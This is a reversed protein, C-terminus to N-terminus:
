NNHNTVEIHGIWGPYPKFNFFKNSKDRLCNRIMEDSSLVDIDELNKLGYNSNSSLLYTFQKLKMPDFGMLRTTVLDVALFNDGGILVGVPKPDPVLPGKNEGGIIGDVISFLKRQISDHIQGNKDAFHIIKMLDVVMRWATDNGYWNGADFLRKEDAVKVGLPKVLKLYLFGYIIRHPIEWLISNKALFTDYMWREFKIIKQEVPTLFGDPFQDGGESPTGLTYHVILNKNTAIGVLGKGNLTVGVKKHVKMKPLSILVDASLITKSIEYEQREGLHHLIAEQRHYVAGYFKKPNPHSYYASEKGLNIKISGKPDGPLKRKCSPMHLSKSWYNRLDLLKVSVGSYSSYFDVVKDLGTVEILEKFNCNYQPADAIIIEGDGQLAIWCYDIVARILSPHTIISYIDKGEFHRSLVFNPKIVVVMGPKIFEGLPNWRNKGYNEIDYGLIYFLDRLADYVYNPESSLNDRFPYEPYPASPNYPPISPYVPKKAQIVGVKVKKM